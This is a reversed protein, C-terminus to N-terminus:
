TRAACRYHRWRTCRQPSLDQEVVRARLLQEASGGLMGGLGTEDADSARNGRDEVPLTM